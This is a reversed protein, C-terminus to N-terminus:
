LYSLSTSNATLQWAISFKASTTKDAIEEVSLAPVLTQLLHLHLASSTRHKTKWLVFYENWM